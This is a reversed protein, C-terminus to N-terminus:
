CAASSAPVSALRVIQGFSGKDTIDKALSASRKAIVNEALEKGPHSAILLLQEAKFWNEWDRGHPCGELQWIQWALSAIEDRNVAPMQEITVNMM